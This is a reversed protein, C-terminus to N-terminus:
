DEEHIDFRPSDMWFADDPLTKLQLEVDEVTVPVGDSDVGEVDVIELLEAHNEDTVRRLRVNLVPNNVERRKSPRWRLVYIHDPLLRRSRYRMRGISVNLFIKCTNEEQDPTLLIAKWFQEPADPPPMMGWYNGASLRDEPPEYTLAWGKIWGSTMAQRLAAGVVTITKADTIAGNTVSMPYWDGVEFGKALLIRDPLIPLTEQLLKQIEPLESPKGSVFVLDCDFAAVLKGYSQFLPAFQERICEVIRAPDYNIPQSPVLVEQGIFKLALQNLQALM